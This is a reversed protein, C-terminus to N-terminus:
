GYGHNQRKIKVIVAFSINLKQFAVPFWRRKHLEEGNYDPPSFGYLMIQWGNKEMKQIKFALTNKRLM